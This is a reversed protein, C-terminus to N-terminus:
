NSKRRWAALRQCVGVPYGVMKAVDGTVVILPMLLLSGLQSLRNKSVPRRVLRLAFKSLHICALGAVIAFAPPWLYGLALLVVGLTYASYRITHRLPWLGSRGDGRAYYYYQRFFRALNSRAHWVVLAEPAFDFRAGESELDLDFIIDECHTLWEPYGGVHTWWKKEFAM